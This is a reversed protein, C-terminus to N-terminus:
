FVYQKPLKCKGRKAGKLMGVFGNVRGWFKQTTKAKEAAKSQQEYCENKKQTAIKRECM